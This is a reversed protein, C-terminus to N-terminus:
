PAPATTTTTTEGSSARPCLKWGSEVISGDSEWKIQSALVGHPTDEGSYEEGNVYLIDYDGEASFDVAEIKVQEHITFACRESNSYLGPYNGSM